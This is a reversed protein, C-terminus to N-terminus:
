LCLAVPLWQDLGGRSILHCPAVLKDEKGFSRSFFQESSSFGTEPEIKCIFGGSVRKCHKIRKAALTLKSNGLFAM